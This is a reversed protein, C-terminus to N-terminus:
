KIKEGKKHYNVYSVVCILIILILLIIVSFSITVPNNVCEHNTPKKFFGCNLLNCKHNVSIENNACKLEYCNHNICEENQNCNSNGVCNWVCVHNNAHKNTECNIEVCSKQECTQTGKCDNESCCEYSKCEHDELYQCDGCNLKTCLSNICAEDSTCESNYKCNLSYEVSYVYKNKIDDSSIIFKVQNDGINIGNTDIINGAVKIIYTADTIKSSYKEFNSSDFTYKYVNNDLKKIEVGNLICNNSTYTLYTSSEKKSEKANFKCKIDKMADNVSKIDSNGSVKATIILKNEPNSDLEQTVTLSVCGVLLVLVLSLILLLLLKKNM